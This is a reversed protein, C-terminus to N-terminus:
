GPRGAAAFALGLLLLGAVLPPWVAVLGWLAGALWVATCNPCGGLPAQLWPWRGLRNLVWAWPWLPRGPAYRLRGTHPCLTAPGLAHNLLRALHGAGWGLLAAQALLLLTSLMFFRFPPNTPRIPRFTSPPSAM